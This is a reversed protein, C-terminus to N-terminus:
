VRHAQVVDRIEAVRILLAEYAERLEFAEADFANVGDNLTLWSHEMEGLLFTCEDVKELIERAIESNLNM